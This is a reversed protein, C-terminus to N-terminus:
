KIEFTTKASESIQEDAKFAQVQWSYPAAPLAVSAAIAISTGRVDRLEFSREGASNYVVVRYSTAGQVPKWAFTRDFAAAATPKVIEVPPPTGSGSAADRGGCAALSLLATVLLFRM